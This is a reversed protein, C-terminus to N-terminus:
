AADPEWGSGDGLAPDVDVLEGLSVGRGDLWAYLQTLTRCDYVERWGTATREYALYRDVTRDIVLQGDATRYAEM